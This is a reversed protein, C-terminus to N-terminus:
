GGKLIEDNFFKSVQAFMDAITHMAEEEPQAGVTETMAVLMQGCGGMFARRTEIQQVAPMKAESLDVRKLYAQYEDELNIM